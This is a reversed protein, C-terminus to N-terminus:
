RRFYLDASRRDRSPDVGGRGVFGRRREVRLHRAGKGVQQRIQEVATDVYSHMTWTPKCGCIDYVFNRLIEPGGATHAVEPHFQLCYVPAPRDDRKM